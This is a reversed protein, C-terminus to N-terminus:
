LNVLYKTKANITNTFGKKYKNIDKVKGDESENSNGLIFYNLKKEKAYIMSSYLTAHGIPLNQSMLERDNVAVGYYVSESGHIIYAGSVLKNNFHGLVLFAEKNKIADLQLDWSMNSRTQRGAIQIHYDRFSNFIDKDFNSHDIIRIKLNSLGWNILSKYSKRINMKILEESLSLKVFPEIEIESSIIHDILKSLLIPHSYFYLKSINTNRKIETLKQFFNNFALNLQKSNINLNFINIPQNFFSCTDDNSFSRMGIYFINGEYVLLSYDYYDNGFYEQNYKIFSETLNWYQNMIKFLESQTFMLYEDETLDKIYKVKM